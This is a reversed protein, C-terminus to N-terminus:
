SIKPPFGYAAAQAHASLATRLDGGGRTNRLWFFREKRFRFETYETSGLGSYSYGTYAWFFAGTRNLNWVLLM